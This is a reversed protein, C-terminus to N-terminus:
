VVYWVEFKTPFTDNISEPTNIKDMKSLNTNICVGGM